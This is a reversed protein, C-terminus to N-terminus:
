ASEKENQPTKKRKRVEMAEAMLIHCMNNFNRGETKSLNFVDRALQDCVRLTKIYRETKKRERRDRVLNGKYENGSM